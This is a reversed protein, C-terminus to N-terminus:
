GPPEGKPKIFAAEVADMGLLKDILGRADQESALEVSYYRRLEEDGSGPDNPTLVVGPRNLEDIDSLRSIGEGNEKVAESTLLIVVTIVTKAAMTNTENLM